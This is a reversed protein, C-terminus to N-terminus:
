MCLGTSHYKWFCYGGSTMFVVFADGTMGGECYLAWAVLCVWELLRLAQLKWCKYPLNSSIERGWRKYIIGAQGTVIGSWGQQSAKGKWTIM